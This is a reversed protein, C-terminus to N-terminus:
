PVRYSQRYDFAASGCPLTNSTCAWPLLQTLLDVWRVQSERREKMSSALLVAIDEDKDTGGNQVATSQSYALAKNVCEALAAKEEQVGSVLGRVEPTFRLM